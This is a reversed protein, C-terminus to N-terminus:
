PRVPMQLAEQLQSLVEGWRAEPLKGGDSETLYFVDFAMTKETALKAFAINLALGTLCSAVSYAFGLRDEALIELVTCMESIENNLTIQPQKLAPALPRADIRSVMAEFSMTGNLVGELTSGIRRLRVPDEMVDGRPTSIWLMDVAMGDSRTDLRAGLINVELAALTGAMKAFLGRTDPCCLLLVTYGQEPVPLFATAPAGAAARRALLIQRAILEPRAGLPYRPPLLSLHGETWLRALRPSEPPEGLEPERLTMLVREVEDRIERLKEEEQATAAELGLFELHVKEFLEWLLANKWDTWIEPGVAATDAYTMLTLMSLTELDGTIAAAQQAVRRDSLDRRQSLHSLLLHHRVLLEV